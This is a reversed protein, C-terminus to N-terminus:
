MHNPSLLFFTGNTLSQHLVRALKKVKHDKFVCTPKQTTCCFVNTRYDMALLWLQKQLHYKNEM